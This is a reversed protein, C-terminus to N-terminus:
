SRILIIQFHERWIYTIPLGDNSQQCIDIIWCLNENSQLLVINVKLANGLATLFLDSTDSNYNGLPDDLLKDLELLINVNNTSYNQYFDRRSLIERRLERTLQIIQYEKGIIM